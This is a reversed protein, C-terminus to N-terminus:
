TGWVRYYSGRADEPISEGLVLVKFPPFERSVTKGGLVVDGTKVKGNLYIAVMGAFLLVFGGIFLGILIYTTRKM